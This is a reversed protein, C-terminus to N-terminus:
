LCKERLVRGLQRNLFARRQDSHHVLRRAVIRHNIRVLRQLAPVEHDPLHLLGTVESLRLPVRNLLYRNIDGSMLHHVVVRTEARIELIHEDTCHLGTLWLATVIVIRLVIGGVRETPLGISNVAPQVLVALGVARLIVEIAVAQPNIRGDVLVHLAIRFLGNGLMESLIELWSEETFEFALRM